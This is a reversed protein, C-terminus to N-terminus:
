VPLYQNPILGMTKAAPKVMPTIAMGIITSALRASLLTGLTQSFRSIHPNYEIALLWLDREVM